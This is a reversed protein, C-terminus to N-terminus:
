SRFGVSPQVPLICGNGREQGSCPATPPNKAAVIAKLIERRDPCGIRRDLIVEVIRVHCNPRRLERSELVKAKTSGCAV